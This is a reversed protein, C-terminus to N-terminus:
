VRGQDIAGCEGDDADAHGPAALQQVAAAPARIEHRAVRQRALRMQLRNEVGHRFGHDDDVLAADHLREAAGGLPQEAAAGGLGDSLVDLGQHGRGIAFVMVTVQLAIHVRALAADDADAADHDALALVARGKRHLKRDAFHFRAVPSKEGAEDAVQGFPLLGFRAQLFQLGLEHM